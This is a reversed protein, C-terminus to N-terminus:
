FPWIKRDDTFNLYEINIGARAGVGTRIPVIVTDGDTLTSAAAGGVIFTNGEGGPFRKYINETAGLDYVLAFVKSADGGVDFGVSPGQWFVDVPAAGPRYLKGRGYTVGVGVAGGVEEGAIYAEPRGQDEFVNAIVEAVEASAEGFFGEVESVLTGRDYQPYDLEAEVKSKAVDAGDPAEDYTTCATLLLAAPAAALMLKLSM